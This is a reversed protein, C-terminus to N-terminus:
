GDELCRAFYDAQEGRERRLRRVEQTLRGVDATLEAIENRHFAAAGELEAVKAALAQVLALDRPAPLPAPPCVHHGLRHAMGCSACVVHPTHDASEM